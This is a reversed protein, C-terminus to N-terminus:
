GRQRRLTRLAWIRRSGQFLLWFEAFHDVKFASVHATEFLLEGNKVDWFNRTRERWNYERMGAKIHRYLETDKDLRESTVKAAEAQKGRRWLLFCAALVLLVAYSWDM